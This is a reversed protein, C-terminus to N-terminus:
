NENDKIRDNSNSGQCKYLEDFKWEVFSKLYRVQVRISYIGIEVVIVDVKGYYNTSGKYKSLIDDIILGITSYDLNTNNIIKM